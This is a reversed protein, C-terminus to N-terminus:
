DIQLDTIAAYESNEEVLEGAGEYAMARTRLDADLCSLAGGTMGTEIQRIATFHADLKLKDEASLPGRKLDEFQDRVLDLVSQRRETIRVQAEGAGDDTGNLNMFDAYANWPNNIAQVAEGAGRYSIYDLGKYGGPRGVMLNLPARGEPNVASAIVHDVSPGLA